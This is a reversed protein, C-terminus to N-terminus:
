NCFHVLKNWGVIQLLSSYCAKTLIYSKRRTFSKGQRAWNHDPIQDQGEHRSESQSCVTVPWWVVETQPSSFNKDPPPPPSIKLASNRDSSSLPTFIQRLPPSPPSKKPLIESKQNSPPHNKLCFKQKIPPISKKFGSNRLWDRGSHSKCASSWKSM